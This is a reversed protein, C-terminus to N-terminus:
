YIIVPLILGLEDGHRIIGPKKDGYFEIIFSDKLKLIDITQKVYTADFNIKYDNKELTYYCKHVKVLSRDQVKYWSLFEDVNIKFYDLQDCEDPIVHAIDPYIGPIVDDDNISNENKFNDIFNQDQKMNFAIKFPLTKKNLIYMTYSDCIIIQHDNIPNYGALVPNTGRKEINNIYKKIAALQKKDSPNYCAADEKVQQDIKKILAELNVGADNIDNNLIRKLEISINELKLM